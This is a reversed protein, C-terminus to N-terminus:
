WVYCNLPQWGQLSCSQFRAAVPASKSFQLSGPAENLVICSPYISSTPCHSWVCLCLVCMGHSEREQGCVNMCVHSLPSLRSGKLMVSHLLLQCYLSTDPSSHVSLVMCVLASPCLTFCNSRTMKSKKVTFTLSNLHFGM